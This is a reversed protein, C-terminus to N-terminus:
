NTTSNTGIAWVGGSVSSFILRPEGNKILVPYQGFSFDLPYTDRNPIKVKWLLSNSHALDIAITYSSTKIRINKRM